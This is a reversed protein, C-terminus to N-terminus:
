AASGKVMAEMVEITMMRYTDRVFALYSENEVGSAQALAVIGDVTKQWSSKVTEFTWVGTICPTERVDLRDKDLDIYDDMVQVFLSVDYMWQRAVEGAFRRVPFILGDITGLVGAMRWSLGSPDPVGTMAKVESDIFEDIRVLARAYAIGDAEDDIGAGMEEKLAHLFLFAGRHPVHAAPTWTGALAARMRQAREVPAIDDMCKDMVHDITAIFAAIQVIRKEIREDLFRSAWRVAHASLRAMAPPELALVTGVRRMGGVARPPTPSSFLVTYPATAYLACSLFRLKKQTPGSLAEPWYRRFLPTVYRDHKSNVIARIADPFPQLRADSPGLLARLQAVREAETPQRAAAV